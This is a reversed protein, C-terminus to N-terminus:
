LHPRSQFDSSSNEESDSQAGPVEEEEQTEWEDDDQSRSSDGQDGAQAKGKGKGRSKKSNGKGGAVYRVGNIMVSAPKTSSGGAVLGDREPNRAYPDRGEAIDLHYQIDWDKLRCKKHNHRPRHCYDCMLKSKDKDSPSAPDTGDGIPQRGVTRPNDTGPSERMACQRM